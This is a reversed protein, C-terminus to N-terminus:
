AQQAFRDAGRPACARAHDALSGAYIVSFGCFAHDRPPPQIEAPWGAAIMIRWCSRCAGDFLVL